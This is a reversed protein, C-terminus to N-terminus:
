VTNTGCSHTCGIWIDTSSAMREESIAQIARASGADSRWAVHRRGAVRGARWDAPRWHGPRVDAKRSIEEGHGDDFEGERGATRINFHVLQELAVPAQSLPPAPLISTASSMDAHAAHDLVALGGLDAGALDDIDAVQADHHAVAVAVAIAVAVVGVVRSVGGQWGDPRDAM